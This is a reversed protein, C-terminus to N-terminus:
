EKFVKRPHLWRKGDAEVFWGLALVQEQPGQIVVPQEASMSGAVELLCGNLVRALQQESIQIKPLHKLFGDAAVLASEVMGSRLQDVTVANELSFDGARTRCLASLCAGTGAMQGADECLTRIYTGASCHVRFCSEEAQHGLIELSYIDVQRVKKEVKIGSRKWQQLTRGQVKVASVDPPIQQLQGTFKKLIEERKLIGLESIDKKQLVEGWIDQTDTQIGWRIVAEYVKDSKLVEFFRTATGLGLVVVGTANPDLTGSHGIRKMKLARRAIAVVDHSTMEQPKDVPLLGNM